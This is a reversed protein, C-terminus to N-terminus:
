IGTTPVWTWPYCPQGPRGSDIDLELQVTEGACEKVTGLLSMGSIKPNGLRRQWTWSRDALVYTFELHGGQMRAERACVPLQKGDWEALDGVRFLDLSRVECTRYQRRERGEQEGGAQYFKRDMRATYSLCSMPRATGTEPLGVCLKGGGMTPEPYVPLGHRSALRRIFEWDTERYQIVPFGVPERDLEEPCLVTMGSEAAAKRIIQGCTMSVDQFSRKEIKLEADSRMEGWRRSSNERM